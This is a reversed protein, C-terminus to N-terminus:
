IRGHSTHALPSRPQLTAAPPSAWQLQIGKLIKRTYLGSFSDAFQGVSLLYSLQRQCVRADRQM